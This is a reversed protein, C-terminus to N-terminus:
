MRPARKTRTGAPPVSMELVWHHVAAKLASELEGLPTRKIIRVVEPVVTAFSDPADKLVTRAPRKNLEVQLIDLAYPVRVAIRRRGAPIAKTSTNSAVFGLAIKELAPLLYDHLAKNGLDSLPGGAMAGLIWYFISTPLARPKAANKTAGKGSTKVISKKAANKSSKKKPQKM